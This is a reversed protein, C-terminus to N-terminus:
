NMNSIGYGISLLVLSSHKESDLIKLWIYLKSIFSSYVVLVTAEITGWYSVLSYINVLSLCELKNHFFMFLQLYNGLLLSEKTM